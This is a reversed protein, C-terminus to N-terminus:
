PPIARPSIFSSSRRFSPMGIVRANLREGLSAAIALRNEDERDLGCHVMLASYTKLVGESSVAGQMGQIWGV